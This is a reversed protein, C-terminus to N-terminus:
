TAALAVSTAGGGNVSGETFGALWVVAAPAAVICIPAPPVGNVCFAPAPLLLYLVSKSGAPPPDPCSIIGFM